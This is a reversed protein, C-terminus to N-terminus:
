RWYYSLVVLGYIVVAGVFGGVVIAAVIGSPLTNDVAVICHIVVYAV